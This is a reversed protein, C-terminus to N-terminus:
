YMGVFSLKFRFAFQNCESDTYNVVNVSNLMSGYYYHLVLFPVMYEHNFCFLVPVIERILVFFKFFNLTIFFINLSFKYYLQYFILFNEQLIHIDSSTLIAGDCNRDLMTRSTRDICDLSSFYFLICLIGKHETIKSELTETLWLQSNPQHLIKTKTM